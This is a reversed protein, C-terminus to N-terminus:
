QDVKPRADNEFVFGNRELITSAGSGPKYDALLAELSKWQSEDLIPKLKEAPLSSMQFFILGIESRRGFRKPPRTETLVMLALRESQRDDLGLDRQLRKVAISVARQYSRRRTDALNRERLAAQESSLTAILTKELLSGEGFLGANWEGQLRNWEAVSARQLENVDATREDFRRTFNELRENFHKIDGKGAVELKKVQAATLACDATLETIREALRRASRPREGAGGVLERARFQEIESNWARKIMEHHDTALLGVLRQDAPRVIVGQTQAPPAPQDEAEEETQARIRHEGALALAAALLLLRATRPLMTVM